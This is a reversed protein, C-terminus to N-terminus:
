AIDGHVLGGGGSGAEWVDRRHWGFLMGARRSWAHAMAVVGVSVAFGIPDQLGLGGESAYTLLMSAFIALAVPAVQLSACIWWACWLTMAFLLLLPVIAEMSGGVIALAGLLGPPRGEGVATVGWVQETSFRAMAQSSLLRHARNPLEKELDLQATRDMYSSVHWLGDAGSIRTGIKFAVPVVWDVQPASRLAFEVGQAASFGLNRFARQYTLVPYLVVFLGFVAAGFALRPRTLRRTLLWLLIAPFVVAALSGRSSRMFGDLLGVGILAAAGAMWLRSTKARDSV